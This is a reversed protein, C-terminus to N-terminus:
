VIDGNVIIKPLKAVPKGDDILIQGDLVSKQIKGVALKDLYPSWDAASMVLDEHGIRYTEMKWTVQSKPSLKVNIIEAPRNAMAEVLRELKLQGRQVQYLLLPIVFETGPVGFCAAHETDRIGDPNEHEAMWKSELTHPAHDTELVDIDGKAFLEFLKEVEDQHALPPLMRAFWGESKVDYSTKLLHHPCVGCSVSLGEKKAKKVTEVDAPNNVHALHLHHQNRGAILEVFEGFNDKGSHLMIPKKPRIKHWHEVIKTFDKAEYDFENGTTPAGYLKLGIVKDGMSDLEALNDSEPQSGAYIGMPIYSTKQIIGQKEKVKAITWTPNGPNNPMDCVLGYGGLLAAKSGSKITEAKNTGPERFHVHLDVAAPITIVKPM